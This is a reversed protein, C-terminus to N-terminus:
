RRTLTLDINRAMSKSYLGACACHYAAYRFGIYVFHDDLRVKGEVLGLFEALTAPPQELRGHVGCEAVALEHLGIQTSGDLCLRQPHDILGDHRHLRHSDCAALSEAAPIVRIQAGDGR